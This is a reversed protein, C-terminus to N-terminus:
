ICNVVLELYFLYIYICDVGPKCNLHVILIILNLYNLHVIILAGIIYAIWLWPCAIHPCWYIFLLFLLHGILIILNLLKFHLYM